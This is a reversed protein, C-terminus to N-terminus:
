RASLSVLAQFTITLSGQEELFCVLFFNLNQRLDQRTDLEPGWFQGTNMKLEPLEKCHSSLLRGSMPLSAWLLMRSVAHCQPMFGHCIGGLCVGSTPLTSNVFGGCTEHASASSSQHWPSYSFYTLVMGNIFLVSQTMLTAPKQSYAKDRKTGIIISSHCAHQGQLSFALTQSTWMKAEYCLNANARNSSSEKCWKTQERGEGMSGKEMLIPNCPWNLTLSPGLLFNPLLQWCVTQSGLLCNPLAISQPFSTLSPM